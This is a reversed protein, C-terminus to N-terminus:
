PKAKKTTEKDGATKNKGHRRPPDHNRGSVKDAPLRPCKGHILRRISLSRKSAIQEAHRALASRDKPKPLPFQIPAAYATPLRIIRGGRRFFDALLKKEDM